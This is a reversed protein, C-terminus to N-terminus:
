PVERRNGRASSFLQSRREPRLRNLDELKVATFDQIVLGPRYRRLESPRHTTAVAVRLSGAARAAELGVPSDEFVVCDAPSLGLREAAMLFIGPDPKSRPAEPGTVIADFSRELGLGQLVFDVNEPPGSTAVATKVGRERLEALLEVLGPVLKLDPAMISRYLEEKRRGYTDLEPPSLPRGTLAQLIEPNRKGFLRKVDEDSVEQGMEKGLQKWAAAHQAINDVLVGDMDFIAGKIM